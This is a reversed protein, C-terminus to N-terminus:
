SEGVCRVILPGYCHFDIACALNPLTDIFEGMAATEPESFPGTGCYTDSSPVTSSGSTCWTADPGWNSIFEFLVAGFFNRLTLPPVRRKGRWAWGRGDREGEWNGKKKGIEM